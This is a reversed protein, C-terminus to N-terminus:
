SEGVSGEGDEKRRRRAVSGAAWAGRSLGECGRPGRPPRGPARGGGGGRWLAGGRRLRGRGVSRSGRERWLPRSSLGPHCAKPRRTRVARPQTTEPAEALRRPPRTRTRAPGPAQGRGVFASGSVDGGRGGLEGSWFFDAAASGRAPLTDVARWLAAGAPCLRASAGPERGRM